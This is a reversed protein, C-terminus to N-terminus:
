FAGGLFPLWSKIKDMFSDYKQSAKDLAKEKFHDYQYDINGLGIYKGDKTIPLIKNTLKNEVSIYDGESTENYEIAIDSPSVCDEKVKNGENAKLLLDYSDQFMDKVIPKDEKPNTRLRKELGSYVFKNDGLLLDEKLQIRVAKDKLYIELENENNVVKELEIDANQYYGDAIKLNSYDPKKEPLCSKVGYGIGFFSAAILGSAVFKAILGM